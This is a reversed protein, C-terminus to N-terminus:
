EEGNEEGELMAISNVAECLGKPTLPQSICLYEEPFTINFLEELDVLLRIYLISDIGLDSLSSDPTVVPEKLEFPIIKEIVEIVENLNAM